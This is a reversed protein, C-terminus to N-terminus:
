LTKLLIPTKLPMITQFIRFSLETLVFSTEVLLEDVFM